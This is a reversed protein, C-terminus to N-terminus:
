TSGRRRMAIWKLAHAIAMQGPWQRDFTKSVLGADVEAVGVALQWRRGDAGPVNRLRPDRGIPKLESTSVIEHLREPDFVSAAESLSGLARGAPWGLKKQVKALESAQQLGRQTVIRISCTSCCSCAISTTTCSETAPVIAPVATTTCGSWSSRAQRLIQARHDAAGHGGRARKGAM